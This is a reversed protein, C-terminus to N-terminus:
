ISEGRAEAEDDYWLKLAKNEASPWDEAEVEYVRVLEGVTIEVHYVCSDRWREVKISMSSTM